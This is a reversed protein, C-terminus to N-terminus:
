QSHLAPRSLYLRPSIQHADHHFNMQGQGANAPTERFNFESWRVADAGGLAAEIMPFAGPHRLWPDLEPHDLLPQSLILGQNRHHPKRRSGLGWQDPHKIQSRDFFANLSQIETASLADQVVVFGHTEFFQRAAALETALRFHPPDRTARRGFGQPAKKPDGTLNNQPTLQVAM